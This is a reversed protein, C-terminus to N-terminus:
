FRLSSLTPLFLGGCSAGSSSDVWSVTGCKFYRDIMRFDGPKGISILDSCIEVTGKNKDILMRSDKCSKNIQIVKPNFCEVLLAIGYADVPWADSTPVESERFGFGMNEIISLLQGAYQKKIALPRILVFTLDDNYFNSYFSSSSDNEKFYRYSLLHQELLKKVVTEVPGFLQGGPFACALHNSEKAEDIWNPSDIGFWLGCDEEVNAVTVSSYARIAPSRFPFRETESTLRHVETIANDGEVVMAVFPWPCFDAPPIDHFINRGEMSFFQTLFKETACVLRMRILNLSIKEFEMLIDGVNKYVVVNPFCLVFTREKVEVTKEMDEVMMTEDIDEVMLRAKKRPSLKKDEEFAM